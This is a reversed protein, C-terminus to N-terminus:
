DVNVPQHTSPDIAVHQHLFVKSRWQWWTAKEYRLKGQKQTRYTSHMPVPIFRSLALRTNIRVLPKKWVGCKSCAQEGQPNADKWDSRCLLTHKIRKLVWGRSM